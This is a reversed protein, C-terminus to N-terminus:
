TLLPSTWANGERYVNIRWEFERIQEKLAELHFSTAPPDFLLRVRLYIYTKVPNLLIVDETFATWVEEPGNIQFGTAPGVGLQHLFSFVSNVHMLIDPDFALYEEPVGLNKKVSNLISTTM